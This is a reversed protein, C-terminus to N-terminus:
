QVFVILTLVTGCPVKIFRKVSWLCLWHHIFYQWRIETKQLCWVSLNFFYIFLDTLKYLLENVTLIITKLQLYKIIIRRILHSTVFLFVVCFTHKQLEFDHSLHVERNANLAEIKSCLSYKHSKALEKLVARGFYCGWELRLMSQTDLFASCCRRETMLIFEGQPWSAKLWLRRVSTALICQQKFVQISQLQMFCYVYRQRSPFM